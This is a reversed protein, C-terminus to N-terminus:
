KKLLTATYYATDEAYKGGIFVPSIVPYRLKIKSDSIELVEGVLDDNGLFMEGADYIYMRSYNDLFGWKIPIETTEGQPCKEGGTNLAGNIGERFELFDDLKCWPVVHVNFITDQMIADKMEITVPTYLTDIPKKSTDIVPYRTFEKLIGKGNSDLELRWKSGRILQEKSQPVEVKECAIITILLLTLVPLLYKMVM